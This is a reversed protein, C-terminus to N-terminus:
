ALVSVEASPCWEFGKDEEVWFTAFVNKGPKADRADGWVGQHESRLKQIAKSLCSQQRFQYLKWRKGPRTANEEGSANLLRYGRKTM